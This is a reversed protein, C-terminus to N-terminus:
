ASSRAPDLFYDRVQHCPDVHKETYMATTPIHHHSRNVRSRQRRTFILCGFLAAKAWQSNQSMAKHGQGEPADDAKEDDPTLKLAETGSSGTSLNRQTQKEKLKVVDRKLSNFRELLTKRLATADDNSQKM